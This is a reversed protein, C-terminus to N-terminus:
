NMVSDDPQLAAMAYWLPGGGRRCPLDLLHVQVEVFDKPSASQFRRFPVGFLSAPERRHQRFTSVQECPIIKEYEDKSNFLGGALLHM